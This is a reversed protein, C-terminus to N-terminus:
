SSPDLLRDFPHSAFRNPAFGTLRQSVLSWRIPRLLPIFPTLSQLEAAAEAIRIGRVRPTAAVEIATLASDYADSCPLGTGCRFQELFWTAHGTAAVRDFLRLDADATWSVRTTEVGIAAWNTRIVAFLVRSGPEDPLAVRLAPIEGNNAKWQRIAEIAFGRRLGMSTEAWPPVAAVDLEQSGRPVLSLREEVQEIGFYRALQARDIALSLIERNDADALFGSDEVIALGFLGEVEDIQLRANSPDIAQALALTTWRGNLVLDTLGADFRAVAFPASRFRLDVLADPPVPPTVEEIERSDEGPDRRLALQVLEEETADTDVIEFPGLGAHDIFIAM